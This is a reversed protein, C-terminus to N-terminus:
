EYHDRIIGKIETIDTTIEEWKYRIRNKLDEKKGLLDTYINAQRKLFVTRM